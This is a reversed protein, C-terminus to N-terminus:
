LRNNWKVHNRKVGSPSGIYKWSAKRNKKQKWSWTKLVAKMTTIEKKMCKREYIESNRCDEAKKRYKINEEKKKENEEFLNENCQCKGENWKWKERNENGGNISNAQNNAKLKRCKRCKRWRIVSNWKLEEERVPWGSGADEAPRTAKRREEHEERWAVDNRRKRRSWSRLMERRELRNRKM